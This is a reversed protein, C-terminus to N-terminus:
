GNILRLQIVLDSKARNLRSRSSSEKINLIDAIEKHTLDDYYYMMLVIRNSESMADIIKKIEEVTLYDYINFDTILHKTDEISDSFILKGMKRKIAIIENMCIKSSWAEISGTDSNYKELNTFIRIFTNQLADDAETNNLGYRVVIKKLNPLLYYYLQKQAVRDNSIANKIQLYIEM